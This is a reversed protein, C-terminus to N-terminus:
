KQIGHERMRRAQLEPDPTNAPMYKEPHRMQDLAKEFEAIRPADENLKAIELGLEMNRLLLTHKLESGEKSLAERAAPDATHVASESLERLRSLTSQQVDWQEKYLSEIQKRVAPDKAQIPGLHFVNPDLLEPRTPSPAIVTNSEDAAADSRALSKPSSTTAMASSHISLLLFFISSLAKAPRV